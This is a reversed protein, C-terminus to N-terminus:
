CPWCFYMFRCYKNCDSVALLREGAFVIRQDLTPKINSRRRCRQGLMLGVDPWIWLMGYWTNYNSMQGSYLGLKIIYKCERTHSRTTVFYHLIPQVPTSQGLDIFFNRIWYTWGLIRSEGLNQVFTESSLWKLGKLGSNNVMTMKM